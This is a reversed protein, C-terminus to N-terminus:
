DNWAADLQSRRKKMKNCNFVHCFATDRLRPHIPLVKVCCVGTPPLGISVSNVEVGDAIDKGIFSEEAVGGQINTVYKAANKPIPKPAPTNIIARALLSLYSLLPLLPSSFLLFFLLNISTLYLPLALSSLPCLLRFAIPQVTPYLDLTCFLHFIHDRFILLTIFNPSSVLSHLLTFFSPHM